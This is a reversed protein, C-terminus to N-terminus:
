EPEFNIHDHCRVRRAGPSGHLAGPAGCIDCTRAARGRAAAMVAQVDTRRFDKPQVRLRLVGLKERAEAVEVGIERLQAVAENVIPLWGARVWLHM